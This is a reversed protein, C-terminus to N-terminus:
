VQTNLWRMVEVTLAAAAAMLRSEGFWTSGLGNLGETISLDLARPRAIWYSEKCGTVLFLMITNELLETGSNGLMDRNFHKSLKQGLIPGFILRFM